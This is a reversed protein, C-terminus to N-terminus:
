SSSGSHKTLDVLEFTSFPRGKRISYSAKHTPAIRVSIAVASSAPIYDLRRLSAIMQKVLTTRAVPDVIGPLACQNTSFAQLKADLQAAVAQRTPWV